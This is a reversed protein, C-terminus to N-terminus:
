VISVLFSTTPKVVVYIVVFEQIEVAERFLSSLGSYIAHLFGSSFARSFM